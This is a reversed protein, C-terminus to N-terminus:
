QKWTNVDDNPNPDSAGLNDSRNRGVAWVAVRGYVVSVPGTSTNRNIQGDYNLDLAVRYRRWNSATTSWPDNLYGPGGLPAQGPTIDLYRKSRPNAGQLYAILRDYDDNDLAESDGPDTPPVPTTPIPSRSIPLVGYDSEYMGISTQLMKMETLARSRKAQQQAGALAPLLLGALVAIIAIVVLLEVLTFRNCRTNM